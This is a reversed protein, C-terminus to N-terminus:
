LTSAFFSALDEEERVEVPLLHGIYASFVPKTVSAATKNASANTWINM